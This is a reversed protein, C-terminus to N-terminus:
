QGVYQGARGREAAARRLSLKRIASGQRLPTSTSIWTRHPPYGFGFAMDLAALTLHTDICRSLQWGVCRRSYAHLVAALTPMWCPPSLLCGARRRSYAFGTPLRHAAPPFGYTPSTLRGPKTPHM